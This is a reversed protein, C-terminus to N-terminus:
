NVPNILVDGNENVKGAVIKGSNLRVRLTGHQTANDLAKGHARIRFGEGTTIADVKAGSVVKWRKRLVNETLPQGSQMNRTIVAGTVPNTSFLLGSPLHELSGRHPRIDGSTLVHGKKLPRSTVWYSGEAAIHIQIFRKKEGCRVAVSRKGSLRNGAPLTIDPKECLTALQEPPTLLTVRQVINNGSASSASNLMGAIRITLPNIVPTKAHSIMTNVILLLISIILFLVRPTAM